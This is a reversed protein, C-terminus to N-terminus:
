TQPGTKLKKPEVKLIKTPKTLRTEFKRAGDEFKKAEDECQKPGMLIQFSRSTDAGFPAYSVGPPSVDEVLRGPVILPFM